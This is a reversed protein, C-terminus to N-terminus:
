LCELVEELKKLKVNMEKLKEVSPESANNSINEIVMKTARIKGNIYEIALPKPNSNIHFGIEYCIQDRIEQIGHKAVIIEYIHHDEKVLIDKEITFGNNILYKRLEPQAQMPQLILTNLKEVVKKSTTLLDSILLGGMGAVIVTDVEGPKLISLGSGLRTEAKDSLSYKKINNEASELPKENIDGAIVFPSIKNKLLYIPIYGHDTGIDAVVDGEIVQDAIKQLRPTLRISLELDGRKFKAILNDNVFPVMM